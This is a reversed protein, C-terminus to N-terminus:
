VGDDCHTLQLGFNIPDKPSNFDLLKGENMRGVVFDYEDQSSITVLHAGRSSCDSVSGAFDLSDDFLHYCHAVGDVIRCKSSASVATLSALFIFFFICNTVHLALYTWALNTLPFKLIIQTPLLSKYTFSGSLNLTFKCAFVFLWLLLIEM